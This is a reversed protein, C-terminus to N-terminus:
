RKIKLLHKQLFTYLVTNQLTTSMNDMKKKLEPYNFKDRNNVVLFASLLNSLNNDITKIELDNMKRELIKMENDLRIIEKHNSKETASSYSVGLLSYDQYLKKREHNYSNYALQTASGLINYSVINGNGVSIQVRVMLSDKEPFLVLPMRSKGFTLFFVGPLQSKKQFRFSGDKVKTSDIKVPKVEGWKFLYVKIDAKINTKGNIILQDQAVVSLGLLLFVLMLSVKNM